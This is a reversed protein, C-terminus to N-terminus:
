NNNQQNLRQNMQYYQDNLRILLCDQKKLAEQVDTQFDMDRAVKLHQEMAPVAEEVHDKIDEKQEPTDFMLVKENQKVADEAAEDAKWETYFTFGGYLAAVMLGAMVGMLWKLLNRSITEYITDAM